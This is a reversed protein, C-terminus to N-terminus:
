STMTTGKRREDKFYMGQFTISYTVFIRLSKGMGQLKLPYCLSISFGLIFSCTNLCREDPLVLAATALAQRSAVLCRWM